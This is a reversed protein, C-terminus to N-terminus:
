APRRRVEQQRRRDIAGDAQPVDADGFAQAAEPSSERGPDSTIQPSESLTKVVLDLHLTLTLTLDLRVAPALAQDLTLTM